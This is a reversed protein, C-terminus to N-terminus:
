KVIRMMRLRYIEKVSIITNRMAIILGLSLSIMIIFSVMPMSELLTLLYSQWFGLVLASDTFMLSVYTGFGSRLLDAYLNTWAFISVFALLILVTLGFGFRKKFQKLNRQYDLHAIVRDFLQDPMELSQSIISNHDNNEMNNIRFFSSKQHM